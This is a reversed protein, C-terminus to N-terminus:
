DKGTLPEHKRRTFDIVFSEDLGSADQALVDFGSEVFCDVAEQYEQLTIRRSLVPFQSAKYLPRFQAMVGITIDEPDFTEKLFGAIERSGATRHPLVLHRILMGRTAIARSSTKLPGVQRFMERIASRNSDVYNAACSYSKAAEDTGYKMDPLYIDVIGRLLKLPEISEYGSTNYVLPIELGQSAAIRLARLTWPLFHTPTVFNINHCGQSQLWLMRAALEEPTYATGEGEHSIQFNQCFYCGLTCHSFFVTGSGRTGSIPPEEGHHPFISSIMLINGAGCFGKQGSLRDINCMRPCLTCTRALRDAQSIREDWESDTLYTYSSLM